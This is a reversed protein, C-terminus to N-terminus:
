RAYHEIVLVQIEGVIGGLVAGVSIMLWEDDKFVPRMISEYQEPTLQSMKDVILNEVDFTREAYGTAQAMTDPILAIVREVVADKAARYRQTGVALRVLPQAFGSQADISRSIEREIASFLRDATPGHLVAEFIVEPAFIDTALIRAYGRTIKDRKAHLVGQFPFLGLFRKQEMPRFLMNLAVYDSVFGVLFGFAPMIWPNHFYAWCALQVFGIAFGFVIGSRRVFTMADSAVSRILDNLQDKNKVLITVALFQLDLFQSLDARMEALLNDVIKPAQQHVRATIARRGAEPLSDWLGPRLQEALDRVVIDIADTLPGRLEEVAEAADVKDLLEEPKLLNETLLEITTAAVKGARRPVLGQWGLFGIGRFELPRYLMQLALLKTVYGIFAAVLPMSAYIIWNASFDAQIEPWTQVLSTM